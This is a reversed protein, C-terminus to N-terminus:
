TLREILAIQEPKWGAKNIRKRARAVMGASGDIGILRGHKSIRELIPGFNVGTGCFLDIVTDGPQLDLMNIAQKRYPWDNFSLLDHVLSLGNYWRLAQNTTM